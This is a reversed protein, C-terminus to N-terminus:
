SIEMNYTQKINRLDLLTDESSKYETDFAVYNELEGASSLRKANIIKYEHCDIKLTKDEFDSDYACRVKIDKNVGYELRFHRYFIHISQILGGIAREKQILEQRFAEIAEEITVYQPVTDAKSLNDVNSEKAKELIPTITTSTTTSGSALVHKLLQVSLNVKLTENNALLIEFTTAGYASEDLRINPIPSANAFVISLYLIFCTYIGM